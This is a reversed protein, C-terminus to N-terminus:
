IYPNSHSNDLYIHTGLLKSLGDQKKINVLVGQRYEFRLSFREQRVSFSADFKKAQEGSCKFGLGRTRGFRSIQGKSMAEIVLGIDSELSEEGYLSHLKPYYTELAPRLTSPIGLGSDSVVTQIHPRTGGYKQLGAFGHLASNSHESVNGILEGFVTIAATEYNNSSRQIFKGTLRRILEQNDSKPDVAGFEVLTGSQGQYRKASSDTPREPLVDVKDHLLDFFGLRNLYTLTVGADAFDVSIERGSNALQNVLSLLRAICGIMAKCDSPCYIHIKTDPADLASSANVLSNEFDDVDVWGNPLKLEFINQNVL